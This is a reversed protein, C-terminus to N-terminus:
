EGYILHSAFLGDMTAAPATQLTNNTFYVYATYGDESTGNVSVMTVFAVDGIDNGIVNWQYRVPRGSYFAEYVEGFTKDTHEDANIYNIVLPEAGGGGGGSSSKGLYKDLWFGIAM